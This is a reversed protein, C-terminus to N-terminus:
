ASLVVAVAIIVVAYLPLTVRSQASGGKQVVPPSGTSSTGNTSNSGVRIVLGRTVVPYQYTGDLLSAEAGYWRLLVSLSGGGWPAPLWNSTWNAPPAVDAPQVLIQFPGDQDSSSKSGYVPAGSAYTINSRDGLAYVNRDNSILFNDANYATLSWFGTASLAPRGSFTYLLSENAGVSLGSSGVPGDGSGNSWSPYIANPAKLMLYGSAAVATRL